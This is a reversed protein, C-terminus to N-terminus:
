GSRGAVADDENAVAARLATSLPLIADESGEVLKVDKADLTTLVLAFRTETKPLSHVTVAAVSDLAIPRRSGVAVTRRFRDLFVQKPRTAVYFLLLFLTGVGLVVASAKSDTYKADWSIREKNEYYRRADNVIEASETRADDLDGHPTAVVDYRAGKRGRREAVTLSLPTDYDFEIKPSIIGSTAVCHPTSGAFARTCSIEVRRYLLFAMFLMFGVLMVFGVRLQRPTDYPVVFPEVKPIKPSDRYPM